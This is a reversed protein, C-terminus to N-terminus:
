PEFNLSACKHGLSEAGTGRGFGPAEKFRAGSRRMWAGAAYTWGHVYVKFRSRQVKFRSDQVKCREQADMRGRCVDMWPCLSQVKFKSSQVKFKSSQVKFKSSQVKFKSSQVKFRAGQV